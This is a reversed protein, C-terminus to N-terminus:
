AQQYRGLLADVLDTMREGDQVGDKPPVGEFVVPDFSRRPIQLIVFVWLYQLAHHDTFLGSYAPHHRHM